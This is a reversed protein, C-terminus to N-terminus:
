INAQIKPKGCEVLFDVHHLPPISDIREKAGEGRPEELARCALSVTPQQFLDQYIFNVTTSKGTQESHLEKRLCFKYKLIRGELFYSFTAVESINLSSVHSRAGTQSNIFRM